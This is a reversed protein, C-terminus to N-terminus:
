TTSSSTVSENAGFGDTYSAVVTIAKNVENQTLTYTSGTAGNILVGDAYWQYSVTGMGDADTINNSATLTEGQTVTGSIIVSGTPVNNVNVVKTTASSIVSELTGQLDTYNAKVTIVKGVENQTLTLTSNTAGSIAVGDAYWVYSITGLGDEDTLTNSATLTQDETATGSIIVSGIPADNVNVVSSTASSTVTEATGEGDTYSAKVTITKNVENQTLTYTQNTAGSIEVGNAFWQYSVTGMGEADTINNSATLTENQSVTGSITVTGVPADNVNVVSSTASSTVTEATGEGDTYSAKVTITKNVENQTLTYTQNTAGSIEVGNAFWQYSVTGMGDADTINNSATLTEGQTVTGSITVTGEPAENVDNISLTVAKTDTLTGNDTAIVNFSYSSKNEFNPNATLTVEGSTSDITFLSADTGSLSYSVTASADVDISTVTYVVQGAGINEDIATATASSTIVPAENVNNIALTVAKTDTLTGNDTAIVNFSYSSKNEFNPNATLTVEGSTSDITFLSADTGSLSYSVTASADVDTSTVTYVVQGAGSNEDIATATASSTIVPAENVNTVTIAVNQDTYGINDTARIIVNYVNNTGNDTPTEYDPASKFTLIGTTSNINFKGSDTGSLTYTVTGTSSSLEADYVTGTANEAFDTTSTSSFVPPLGAMTVDVKTATTMVNPTGEDDQGVVYIDYATNASLGTINYTGTFPTTTVDSNGSKLASSGTSDQGALIQVVSPATAGDAVVVYYIKGAEDLSASLDVTTATVNSTAPAIDFTPATTDPATITFNGIDTMVYPTANDGVWNTPNGIAALLEAKTGIKIGNYKMNDFGYIAGSGSTGISTNGINSMLPVASTGSILGMPLNSATQATIATATSNWQGAASYFVSQGTDAIYVFTAGSTTGSTGQYVIIQEGSTQFSTGIAGSEGTFGDINSGTVTILTGASINSPVTWTLHGETATGSSYFNGDNNYGADTFNIVTGANIDVLPVFAWRYNPSTEDTNIGVVAIDGATLITPTVAVSTTVDVKTATAMVNPTGEDDQGVVYIDYATNASLGTINYTGTF